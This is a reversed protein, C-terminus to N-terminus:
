LITSLLNSNPFHCNEIELQEVDDLYEVPRPDLVRLHAHVRRLTLGRVHRLFLCSSPLVGFHHLEPYDAPFEGPRLELDGPEGNGAFSIELDEMLIDEIPAEPIGTIVIGSVSRPPVMAQTFHNLIDHEPLHVQARIRLLRVQHIRGAPRAPGSFYVRHRDGLRIFIPGTASIVEIDSITVDEIHAGDMSIIKIAGLGAHTVTCHSVNVRRMDGYSETGLKIAGCDSSLVCNRVSIDECPEPRTSKLCIADDGTTIECDHVQVHRCSDLDIGDNNENVRSDIRVANIEVHECNLLHLTWAPSDLLHIHDVTVRTCNIFRVLFPREYHVPSDFGFLGGQGNIVGPGRLAVDHLNEALLLARGRRHGVADTFSSDPEPYDAIEGSGLLVAGKDLWLEVDSRLYLTGTLYTGAPVRVQGGGAAACADIQQQLNLTQLQM